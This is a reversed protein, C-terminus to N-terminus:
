LNSIKSIISHLGETCLDINQNPHRYIGGVIYKLNNKTLEIFLCESKLMTNSPLRLDNRIKPLLGKKIFLGVGGVSSSVPMEYFLCYGDLINQYFNVNYNWIETLVIVDFDMLLLKM